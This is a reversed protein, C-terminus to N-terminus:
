LPKAPHEFFQLIEGMASGTAVRCRENQPAPDASRRPGVEIEDRAFGVM